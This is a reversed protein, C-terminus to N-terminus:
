DSFHSANNPHLTFTGTPDELGVCLVSLPSRFQPSQVKGLPLCELLLSRQHPITLLCNPASRIETAKGRFSEGSDVIRKSSSAAESRKTQAFESLRAISVDAAKDLFDDVVRATASRQGADDVAVRVSVSQLRFGDNGGFAHEGTLEDVGALLGRQCDAVGEGEGGHRLTGDNAVNFLLNAVATRKGTSGSVVCGDNALDGFGSDGTDLKGRTGLLNQLVAAPRLDSNNSSAAPNVLRHELGTPREVLEPCLPVAPRPSTTHSHVGNIVRVTRLSRIRAFVRRAFGSSTERKRQGAFSRSNRPKLSLSTKREKRM